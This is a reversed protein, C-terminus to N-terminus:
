VNGKQLAVRLATAVKRAIMERGTTKFSDFIYTRKPITVSKLLIYMVELRANKGTKTSAARVLLPARGKRPIFQLNSFERPSHNKAHPHIPVALAKARKPRIVGGFEHIRAYASSTALKVAINLGGKGRMVQSIRWSRALAGSTRDLGSSESKRGSYYERIIHGEFLRMGQAVADRM